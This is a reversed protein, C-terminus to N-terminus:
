LRKLTISAGKDAHSNHTWADTTLLVTAGYKEVLAAAAGSVQAADVAELAELGPTMVVLRHHPDKSRELRDAVWELAALRRPLSGTEGRIRWPLGLLSVAAIGAPTTRGFVELQGGVAIREQPLRGTLAHALNMRGAPTSGALVYLAGSPVDFSCRPLLVRGPEYITLDSARVALQESQGGVPRPDPQLRPSMGDFIRGIASNLYDAPGGDTPSPQRM